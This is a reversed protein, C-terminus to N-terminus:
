RPLRNKWLAYRQLSTFVKGDLLLHVCDQVLVRRAEISEKSLPVPIPLAAEGKGLYIFPVCGFLVCSLAVMNCIAQNECHTVDLRTM